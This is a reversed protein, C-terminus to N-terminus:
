FIQEPRWNVPGKEGVDDVAVAAAVVVVVVVIVVVAVAAAAAAVAVAADAAAVAVVAAAAVAVAAAAAAAAAAATLVVVVAAVVVAAAVAAVFVADVVEVVELPPILLVLNILEPVLLARLQQQSCVLPFRVQPCFPSETQRPGRQIGTPLLPTLPALRNWPDGM